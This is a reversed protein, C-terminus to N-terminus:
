TMLNQTVPDPWLKLAFLLLQSFGILQDKSLMVMRVEAEQDGGKTWKPAPCGPSQKLQSYSPFYLCFTQAATGFAVHGTSHVCEAVSYCCGWSTNGKSWLSAHGLTKFQLRYVEVDPCRQKSM